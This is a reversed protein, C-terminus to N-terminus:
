GNVMKRIMASIDAEQEPAIEVGHHAMEGLCLVLAELSARNAEPCQGPSPGVAVDLADEYLRWVTPARSMARELAKVHPDLTRDEPM